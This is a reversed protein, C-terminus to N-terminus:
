STKNKQKKKIFRAVFLVVVAVISEGIANVVLDQTTNQNFDPNYVFRVKERHTLLENIFKYTPEKQQSSYLAICMGSGECVNLLEYNVPLLMYIAIFALAFFIIKKAKM